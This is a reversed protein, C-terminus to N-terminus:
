TQFFCAFLMINDMSRSCHFSYFDIPGSFEYNANCKSGLAVHVVKSSISKM